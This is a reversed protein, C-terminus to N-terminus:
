SAIKNLLTTEFFYEVINMIGLFVSASLFSAIAYGIAQKRGTSALGIIGLYVLYISYLIAAYVIWNMAPIVALVGAIFLPTFSYAAVKLGPLGGWRSESTTVVAAIIAGTIVVNIVSICYWMVNQLLLRSLSSLLTSRPVPGNFVIGDIVAAAPPIAALIAVYRLIIGSYTKPEDRIVRWEDRPRILINKVRILLARISETGGHM